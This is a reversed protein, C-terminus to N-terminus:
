NNSLDQGTELEFLSRLLARWQTYQEEVDGSLGHIQSNAALIAPAVESIFGSALAAFEQEFIKSWKYRNYSQSLSIFSGSGVFSNDKGPELESIRNEEIEEYSYQRWLDYATQMEQQLVSYYEDVTDIFLHHRVRMEGVRQLMPDNVALLSNVSVTGEPGEQLLHGFTDPSLDNAYIMESVREINLLEAESLQNRIILLDNAVREYLDQFPETFKEAPSNASVSRVSEPYDNENTTDSYIRNLWERGTSDWASVLLKLNAGDSKVITGYLLLDVSPDKQPLVRVAGWQDSEVLTNRMLYPLYHVEKQKIEEFIWDGVRVSAEPRTDFIVIGINLLSSEPPVEASRILEVTGVPVAPLDDLPSSTQSCSVFFCLILVEIAFLLSFDKHSRENMPHM